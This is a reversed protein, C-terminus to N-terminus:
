LKLAAQLVTKPFVNERLAKEEATLDNMSFEFGLWVELSQKLVSAIL